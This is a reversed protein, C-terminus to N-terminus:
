EVWVCGKLEVLSELFLTNHLAFIHILLNFLALAEEGARFVLPAAHSTFM